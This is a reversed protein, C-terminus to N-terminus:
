PLGLENNLKAAAGHPQNGGERVGHDLLGKSHCGRCGAEGVEATTLGGKFVTRTLTM